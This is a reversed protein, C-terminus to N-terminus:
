LTVLLLAGLGAFLLATALKLIGLHRKLFGGLKESGVGLYGLLLLAVLPAIFMLNYILLHWIAMMRHGPMKVVLVITPVYIQGTCLSELLAVLCGVIFSGILLRRSTLGTRIVKHIRGKISKPLGLTVNKVDGSRVYRIFDVFSWAALAFSLGAIALTLAMSIRHSVSFSKIAVLIGLGLLFYTLFVALTFGIGVMVLQRRTKGLHALMSLLFVITTFACPNIGDLLGVIAVAWVTFTEFHEIIRNGGKQSERSDASPDFTMAGRALQDSIVSNLRAAIDKAGALQRDGVFIQPPTTKGSRYHDRYLFLKGYADLSEVNLREIHIRRGWRQEEATLIGKVKECQECTPSYFFVVRLPADDAGSDAQSAGVGTVNDAPAALSSTCALSSITVASLLWRIRAPGSIM